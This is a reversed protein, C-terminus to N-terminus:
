FLSLQSKPQDFYPALRFDPLIIQRLVDRDKFHIKYYRIDNHQIVEIIRGPTTHSGSAEKVLTGVTM